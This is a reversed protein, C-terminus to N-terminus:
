HLLKYQAVEQLLIKNKLPFCHLINPIRHHMNHCYGCHMAPVFDHQLERSTRTVEYNKCHKALRCYVVFIDLFVKFQKRDRELLFASFFCCFSHLKHWVKLFQFSIYPFVWSSKSSEEGNEFHRIKVTFLDKSRNQTAINQHYEWCFESWNCEMSHVSWHVRHAKTTM